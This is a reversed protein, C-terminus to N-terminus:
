FGVIKHNKEQWPDIRIGKEAMEQKSSDTM